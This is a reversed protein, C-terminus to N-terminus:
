QCDKVWVDYSPHELASVSPSSAFMWGSFIHHIPEGEQAYWLDLYARAEPSSEPDNKYCQCVNIRLPGMRMIKGILVELTQSKGTTKDLVYLWAKQAEYPRSEFDLEPEEPTNSDTALPESTESVPSLPAEEPLPEGWSLRSGVIFVWMMKKVLAKLLAPLTSSKTQVLSFRHM